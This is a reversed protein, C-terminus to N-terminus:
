KEEVQHCPVTPTSITPTRCLSQISTCSHCHQITENEAEDEETKINQLNSVDHKQGSTDMGMNRGVENLNQGALKKSILTINAMTLDTMTAKSACMKM